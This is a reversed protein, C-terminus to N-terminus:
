NKGKAEEDKFPFVKKLAHMAVILVGLTLFTLGMGVITLAVGFNIDKM